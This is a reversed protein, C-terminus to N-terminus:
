RMEKPEYDYLLLMNMNGCAECIILADQYTGIYKDLHIRETEGCKLCEVQIKFHKMGRFNM